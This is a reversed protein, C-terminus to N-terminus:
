LKVFKEIASKGESIIKIIYLGEKLFSM